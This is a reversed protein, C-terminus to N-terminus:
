GQPRNRAVQELLDELVEYLDRDGTIGARGGLRQGVEDRAKQLAKVANRYAVVDDADKPNKGM